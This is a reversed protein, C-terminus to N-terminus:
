VAVKRESDPQVAKAEKLALVLRSRVQAILALRRRPPAALAACRPCWGKSRVALRGCSCKRMWARIIKESRALNYLSGTAVTGWYGTFRRENRALRKLAEETQQKM